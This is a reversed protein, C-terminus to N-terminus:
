TAATTARRLFAITSSVVSETSIPEGRMGGQMFTRVASKRKERLKTEQPTELQPIAMLLEKPRQGYWMLSPLTTLQKYVASKQLLTRHLRRARRRLSDTYMPIPTEQTHSEVDYMAKDFSSLGHETFSNKIIALNTHSSLSLHAQRALLGFMIFGKAYADRENEINLRRADLTSLTFPEGWMTPSDPYVKRYLSEKYAAAHPSDDIDINKLLHGLEHLYSNMGMPNDPIRSNIRPSAVDFTQKSYHYNETSGVLFHTVVTHSATKGKDMQLNSIANYMGDISVVSGHRSIFGFKEVTMEIGDNKEKIPDKPVVYMLDGAMRGMIIVKEQGDQTTYLLARLPSNKAELHTNLAHAWYDPSGLHTANEQNSAPHLSAIEASAFVSEVTPHVCKEYLGASLLDRLVDPGGEEHVTIKKEKPATPTAAVVASDHAVQEQM